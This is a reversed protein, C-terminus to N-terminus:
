LKLSFGASILPGGIGIEANLGILDDFFVRMGLALKFSVPVLNLTQNLNSAGSDYYTTRKYGAGLAFYPDIKETTGFHYNFRGLIRIKSVGAKEWNGTTGSQYNVGADAYTFEGGLGIKEDLMFEFRAGLHNTNKVNSLNNANSLSRLLVGNFYPWGYFADILINDKKICKNNTFDSSVQAKLNSNLVTMLFLLLTFTYLKKM